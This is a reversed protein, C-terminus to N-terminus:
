ATKVMIAALASDIDPYKFPFGLALARAPVVRQGNLLAYTALEGVAARLAFGPVRLWSPRGLARGIARSFEANTVPHPATANLPGVAGTYELAWLLFAIWDDRHIWSIYQRGSAIPGGAFLRFPLMMKELAGGDRALVVGSRLIVLRVGLPEVPRAEAEWAVAMRGFFDDGPPFSEDVEEDGLLGYFGVASGQLFTAPKGHAARVAAALSRTSLVRSDRLEEKREATWRKGAINAGALNIVARAGDIEAAWAGTSGDPDWSAMRVGDAVPPTDRRALVVVDYGRERLTAALPRGLFGTGGAVVVRRKASRPGFPTPEV